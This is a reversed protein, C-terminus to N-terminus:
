PERYHKDDSSGSMVEQKLHPGVKCLEEDENSSSPYRQKEAYVGKYEEEEGSSYRPTKGKWKDSSEQNQM